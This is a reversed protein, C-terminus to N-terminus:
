LRLSIPSLLSHKDSGINVTTAGPDCGNGHWVAFSVGKVAYVEGFDKHLKQVNHCYKWLKHEKELNM